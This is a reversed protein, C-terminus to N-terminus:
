SSKDTILVDVDGAIELGANRGKGSYILTGGKKLTVELTATLSENVKGAMAGSIPSILEGTKGKNAIIDLTLKGQRFSLLLRDDELKSTMKAGSYTTFKYLQDDIYLGVLFGVFYQGLWPIHAVSVMISVKRSLDGFHNSQMWFWCKPFSTGWDKEVYGIGGNFDYVKGEYTVEGNLRHHLSVVGHYCQMFPVFSYWGMIGPAGLEKPWPTINEFSVDGSIQALNFRTGQADFYHEGVSVAFKDPDAQFAGAEFTEYFTRGNTGDIMQIFAHGNGNEDYSIGPILSFALDENKSIMKYYWGEFYKKQKGWGHFREPHWLAKWRNSFNAIM